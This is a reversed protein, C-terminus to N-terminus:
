AAVVESASLPPAIVSAAPLAAMRVRGSGPAEPDRPALLDRTMSVVGGSTATVAIVFWVM